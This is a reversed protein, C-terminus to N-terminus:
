EVKSEDASLVPLRRPNGLEENLQPTWNKSAMWACVIVFPLIACGFEGIFYRTRAREITLPDIYRFMANHSAHLLIAPWVSGSKIRVWALIFSVSIIMTAFCTISYWAPAGSNYDSWIILPIHWAAWIMGSIMATRTFSTAKILAPVLFGRWGIEEGAAWLCGFLVRALSNVGYFITLPAWTPQSGMHLLVRIKEVQQADPFGGIGIAWVLLYSPWIYAMPIIWAAVLYRPKGLRWGFQHWPRKSFFGTLIGAAGPCWMLGRVYWAKMGHTSCLIYFPLSFSFVLSLYALIRIRPSLPVLPRGSVDLISCWEWKPFCSFHIEDGWDVDPRRTPSPLM